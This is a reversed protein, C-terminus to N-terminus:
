KSANAIDELDVRLWGPPVGLKRAKTELKDLDAELKEQLKKEKNIQQLLQDAQNKRQIQQDLTEDPYVTNAQSYDTEMQELKNKSSLLQTLLETKHQQWYEKTKKDDQDQSNAAAPGVTSKGATNASKDDKKKATGMKIFSHPKEPVEVKDINDNTIVYKSKKTNKRREKEKKQLEVLNVKQSHLPYDFAAFFLFVVAVVIISKM